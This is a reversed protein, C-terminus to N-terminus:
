SALRSLDAVRNMADHVLRLLGQRNLRLDLAEANVMVGDFFADVPARFGALIQLSATFDGAEFRANAQPVIALAAQHLAQEAPETLLAPNVHPDVEGAKRLVVTDTWAGETAADGENAVTWTIEIPRGEFGEEPAVIGTVGLDASPALTDTDTASNNAPQPDVAPAQVQASATNLLSGTAAPSLTANVLLRLSSGVPM